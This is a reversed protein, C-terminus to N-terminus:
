INLFCCFTVSILQHCSLCRAKVKQLFEIEIGVKPINQAIRPFGYNRKWMNEAHKTLHALSLHRAPYLITCSFLKSHLIFVLALGWFLM